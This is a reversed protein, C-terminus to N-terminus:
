YINAPKVYAESIWNLNVIFNVPFLKLQVLYNYLGSLHKPDRLFVFFQQLLITNCTM